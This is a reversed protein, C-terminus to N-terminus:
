YLPNLLALAVLFSRSPHHHHSKPSTQLHYSTTHQAPFTFHIVNLKRSPFSYPLNPDWKNERHYLLILWEWCPNRQPPQYINWINQWQEQNTAISPHPSPPKPPACAALCGVVGQPAKWRLSTIGSGHACVRMSYPELLKKRRSYYLVFRLEIWAAPVRQVSYICLHSKPYSHVVKSGM